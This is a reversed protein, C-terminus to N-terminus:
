AAGQRLIRAREALRGWAALFRGIDAETTTWGLSVRIAEGAITASLGMAQLVHSPAQRSSSCAAGASVAVGDLDLAIVQVAAEAGPLGIMSTNPLRPAGAGHIVAEPAIAQVGLELADRLGELRAADPMAVASKAAVGFGIIGPLNETGPRRRREQGGGRLMPQLLQEGALILAGVGQPGGLKHASLTVLDAGLAGLNVPIRGAAQVIDSHLLAGHRHAIEAIAAVPQIVGTENNALMVSVLAPRNDGALAADLADLRIVGQGDVAVREADPVAELVSPHEISSVLIRSRAAGSLALHNAETGGSTFIVGSPKAGILQAVQARANELAARAARGAAHVSSANGARVLAASIADIVEPRVPTTANCDLYARIM